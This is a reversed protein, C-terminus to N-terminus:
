RAVRGAAEARVRLAPPPRRRAARRAVAAGLGVVLLRQELRQRRRRRPRALPQLHRAPGRRVRQAARQERRREELLLPAAEVLPGRAAAAAAAAPPAAATLGDRLLLRLPGAGRLPPALAGLVRAADQLRRRQEAHSVQAQGRHARGPIEIPLEVCPWPIAPTGSPLQQPM